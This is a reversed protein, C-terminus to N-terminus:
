KTIYKARKITKAKAVMLTPYAFYSHNKWLAYLHYRSSLLFWTKVIVLLLLVLDSQGFLSTKMNITCPDIIEHEQIKYVNTQNDHELADFCLRVHTLM